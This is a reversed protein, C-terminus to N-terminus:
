CQNQLISDLERFLYDIDQNRYGRYRLFSQQKAKQHYDVPPMGFKKQWTSLVHDCWQDELPALAIEILSADIGKEVLEMKIRDAGFGKRCRARAYAEAFRQDSLYGDDLLKEIITNVATTLSQHQSDQKSALKACLKSRLETVSHERRALLGVALNYGQSTLQAIAQNNTGIDM